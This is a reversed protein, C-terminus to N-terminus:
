MHKMLLECNVGIEYINYNLCCKARGGHARIM